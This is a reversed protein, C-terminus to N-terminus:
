GRESTSLYSAANNHELQIDTIRCDGRMDADRYAKHGTTLPRSVTVVTHLILELRGYDAVPADTRNWRVLQEHRSCGDCSTSNIDRRPLPPYRSSIPAITGDNDDDNNNNNIVDVSTLVLVRLM